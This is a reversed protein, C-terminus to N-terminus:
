DDLNLAEDVADAMINLDYLNYSGGSLGDNREDAEVFGKQRLQSIRDHITRDTVPDDGRKECFEMYLGHVAEPDLGSAERPNTPCEWAVM